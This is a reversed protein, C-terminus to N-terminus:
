PTTEKEPHLSPVLDPSERRLKEIVAERAWAARSKGVFAAAADIRHSLETSINTGLSRYRSRWGDSHHQTM